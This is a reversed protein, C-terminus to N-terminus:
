IMLNPVRCASDDSCFRWDTMSELKISAGALKREFEEAHRECCFHYEKGDIKKSYIAFVCKEGPVEVKCLECRVIKM